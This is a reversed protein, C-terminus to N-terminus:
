LICDTLRVVSTESFRLVQNKPLDSTSFEAVARRLVPDIGLRSTARVVQSLIHTQARRLYFRLMNWVSGAYGGSIDPFQASM